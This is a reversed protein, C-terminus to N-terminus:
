RLPSSGRTASSRSSPEPLLVYKNAIARSITSEHKGLLQALRARTLPRLKEELGTDLFPPQVEVIAETVRQLTRHRM